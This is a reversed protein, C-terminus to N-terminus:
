GWETLYRALDKMRNMWGKLFVKQSGKAIRKLFSKRATLYCNLRDKFDFHVTACRALYNKARRPGSHVAFDFLAIALQPTPQFNAQSAYWYNNRYIDEVEEDSIQKIDKKKYGRKVLYNDYTKQTVGKNTSGGRDNPHNSYGGEWRLTFNIAKQFIEEDQM